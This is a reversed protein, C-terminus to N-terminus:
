SLLRIHYVWAISPLLSLPGEIEIQAIDPFLTHFDRVQGLSGTANPSAITKLIQHIFHGTSAATPTELSM